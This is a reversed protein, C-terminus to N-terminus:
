IEKASDNLIARLLALAQDFEFRAVHATLAEGRRGLRPQLRQTMEQLVQRARTDQISLLRELGALEGRLAEPMSGIDNDARATAALPSMPEGPKEGAASEEETVQGLRLDLWFRSGQGPESDVGVRARMLQAMERVLALGLGIGEFRRDRGGDAQMFPEFMRVLADTAVGMGTDAVTFRVPCYETNGDITTTPGATVSIEGQSTFKCANDLYQRLIRRILRADGRLRAPLEPSIALSTKLGKAGAAAFGPACAEALMPGLEFADERAAEGEGSVLRAFDIIGNFLELVRESAAVIQGALAEQAPPLRRDCLLRAFGLISNLPTRLEHSMTGLFRSKARSGAEAQDRAVRLQDALRELEATREKVLQELRDRHRQLESERAALELNQRTVVSYVSVVARSLVLPSPSLHDGHAQVFAEEPALGSEIARVQRAMAQDEGLIHLVLWSALFSLLEDGTVRGRSLADIMGAVKEGFAAHTALHHERARRDLSLRVMMREESDFHSAAYDLLRELIVGMEASCGGGAGALLPAADNLLDVLGRHQEDVTRIGTMLDENWVMFTM